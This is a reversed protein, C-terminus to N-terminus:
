YGIALYNVTIVAPNPNWVTFGSASRTAQGVSYQNGSTLQPTLLLQFIANPFASNFNASSTANAAANVQGWKVHVFVANGSADHCPISLAGPNSALVALGMLSTFASSIQDASITDTPSIFAKAWNTNNTVPNSNTNTQKAQYVIGNSGMVLSKNAQYETTQDWSAIGHQSIHALCTDVRNQYWNFWQRPPIEATWGTQIKSDSPKLVDGSSAWLNSLDPKNIEAM